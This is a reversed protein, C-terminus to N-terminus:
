NDTYLYLFSPRGMAVGAPAFTTAESGGCATLVLASLALLFGLTRIM